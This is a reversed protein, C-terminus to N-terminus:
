TKDFKTMLFTANRIWQVFTEDCFDIISKNRVEARPPRVVKTNPQVGNRQAIDEQHGRPQGEQHGQKFSTLTDVFQM